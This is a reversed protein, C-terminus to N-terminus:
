NLVRSNKNKVFGLLYDMQDALIRRNRLILHEAFDPKYPVYILSFACDKILRDSKACNCRKCSTVVNTWINPGGKSQPHVHDRTLEGRTFKHGCYACLHKDRAFLANNTLTPTGQFKAVEGKVSIINRIDMTSREMSIANTGGRLQFQEGLDWAVKDSGYYYAAREYNIWDLPQGAVDLKLVNPLQMEM